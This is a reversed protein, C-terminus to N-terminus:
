FVTTSIRGGVGDTRGNCETGPDRGGRGVSPAVGQDRSPGCVGTHPHVNALSDYHRCIATVLAAVCDLIALVTRLVIHWRQTM